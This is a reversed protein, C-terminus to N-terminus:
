DGQTDFERIRESDIIWLRGTLNQGTSAALFRQLANEIDPLTFPEALRLVIVGAYRQPPFRLISSFDKDFTILVREEARCIEILIDDSASSLDEDVVTAVDHGSEKLLKLGRTGLNEDLKIKM